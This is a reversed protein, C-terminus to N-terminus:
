EIILKEGDFQFTQYTQPYQKGVSHNWVWLMAARQDETALAGFGQSWEGGASM